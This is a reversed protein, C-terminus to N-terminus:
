GNSAVVIVPELFNLCDCFSACIINQVGLGVGLSTLDRSSFDHTHWHRHRLLVLEIVFYFLYDSVGPSPRTLRPHILELWTLNETSHLQFGRRERGGQGGGRRDGEWTSWHWKQFSLLMLLWYDSVQHYYDVQTETLHLQFSNKIAKTM